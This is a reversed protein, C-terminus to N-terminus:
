FHEHNNPFGTQVELLCQICSKNTKIEMGLPLAVEALLAGRIIETTKPDLESLTLSLQLLTSFNTSHLCSFYYSFMVLEFHCM